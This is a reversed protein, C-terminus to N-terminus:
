WRTPCTLRCKVLSSKQAPTHKVRWSFMQSKFCCLQVTHANWLKLQQTHWIEWGLSRTSHPVLWASSVNHALNASYVTVGRQAPMTFSFCPDSTKLPIKNALNLIGFHPSMLKIRCPITWGPIFREEKQQCRPSRSSYSRIKKKNLQRTNNRNVHLVRCKGTGVGGDGIGTTTDRFPQCASPEFHM